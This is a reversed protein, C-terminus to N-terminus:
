NLLQLLFFGGWGIRDTHRTEEQSQIQKEIKSRNHRTSSMRENSKNSIRCRQVNVPEEEWGGGQRGAPAESRRRKSPNWLWRVRALYWCILHDFRRLAGLRGGGERLGRGGEVGEVGVRRLALRISDHLPSPTHCQKTQFLGRSLSGGDCRVSCDMFLSGVLWHPLLHLPVLLLFLRLFLHLVLLGMTTGVTRPFLYLLDSTTAM